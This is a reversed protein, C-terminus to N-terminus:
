KIIRRIVTKLKSKKGREEILANIEKPTSSSIREIFKDKM